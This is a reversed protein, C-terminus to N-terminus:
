LINNNQKYNLPKVARKFIDFTLLFRIILIIVATATLVLPPSLQFDALGLIMCLLDILLGHYIYYYLSDQGLKAITKSEICVMRLFFICVLGGLFMFLLRYIFANTVSLGMQKYTAAGRLLPMVPIDSQATVWLTIGFAVMSLAVVLYKNAKQIEHLHGCRAYHGLIFFPLFTFTRQFSCIYGIPIFGSFVSLLISACIVLKKSGLISNPIFQLMLRWYILSLLYWLTWYPTVISIIEGTRLLHLILNVGQFICLTLALNVISYTYKRKDSQKHSFYGSIFVFLPMHFLYICCNLVNGGNLLKGICHGLIVFIILIFKLSDLSKNREM